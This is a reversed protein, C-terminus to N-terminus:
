LGKDYLISPLISLGYKIKNPDYVYLYITYMCTVCYNYYLLILM